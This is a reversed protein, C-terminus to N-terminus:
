VTSHLWSARALTLAQGGVKISACPSRLHRLRHCPLCRGSPDIEGAPIGPLQERDVQGAPPRPALRPGGASQRGDAPPPPRPALIRQSSTGESTPQSWGCFRRTSPVPGSAPRGTHPVPPRVTTVRPAIVFPPVEVWAFPKKPAFRLYQPYSAM